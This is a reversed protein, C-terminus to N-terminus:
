YRPGHGYGDDYPSASLMVPEGVMGHGSPRSVMGSPHHVVLENPRAGYALQPSASPAYHQGHSPAVAGSSLAYHAHVTSPTGAAPLGSPYGQGSYNRSLPAHTADDLVSHSPSYMPTAYPSASSGPSSSAYSLNSQASPSLQSYSAYSPAPSPNSSSRSTSPPDLDVQYDLPRRHAELPHLTANGRGSAHDYVAYSVNDSHRTVSLPEYGMSTPIESPVPYPPPPTRTQVDPSGAMPLHFHRLVHALQTSAGVLDHRLDLSAQAGETWDASRKWVRRGTYIGNDVIPEEIFFLPAQSLIFTVLAKGPTTTMYSTEKIHDFPVEIKFGYGSSQIYWVLCRRNECVYTVLDHKAIQTAIRRWHGITLEYCPIITISDEERILSQLDVEFGQRLEPPTQPPTSDKGKVKGDLLKAKARRNQFWIQTQREQMGLLQSIERRRAATPSRDMAFFRELHVLQDPTVRSRKRKEKEPGGGNKSGRSSTTSSHRSPASSPPVDQDSSPSSRREPMEPTKPPASLPSSNAPSLSEEKCIPSPPTSSRAYSADFPSGAKLEM